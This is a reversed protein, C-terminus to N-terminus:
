PRKDTVTIVGDEHKTVYVPASLEPFGQFVVATSHKNEGDGRAIILDDLEENAFEIRGKVLDVWAAVGGTPNCFRVVPQVGAPVPPM